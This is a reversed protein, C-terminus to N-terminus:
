RAYFPDPLATCVLFMLLSADVLVVPRELNPTTTNQTCLRSIGSRVVEEVGTECGDGVLLSDWVRQNLNMVGM